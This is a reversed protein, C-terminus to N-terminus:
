HCSCGCSSINGGEDVFRVIEDLGTYMETGSCKEVVLTPVARVGYMVALEENELVNVYEINDKDALLEKAPGCYKCNPSTFLMIRM